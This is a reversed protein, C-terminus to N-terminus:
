EVGSNTKSSGLHWVRTSIETSNIYEITAEAGRKTHLLLKLSLPNGNLKEKMEKQKHKYNSCSLLLHEPTQRKGCSCKDETSLGHQYLYAKNYGHGLKLQFYASFTKRKTGNPVQIKPSIKWNFIKRYSLPNLQLRLDNQRLYEIWQLHIESKLRSGMMAFSTEMTEPLM